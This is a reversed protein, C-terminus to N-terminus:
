LVLLPRRARAKPRRPLAPDLGEGIMMAAFANGNEDSLSVSDVGPVDVASEWVARYRSAISVM